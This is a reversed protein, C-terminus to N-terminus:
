EKDENRHNYEHILQTLADVLVEKEHREKECAAELRQVEVELKQIKAYANKLKINEEMQFTDNAM